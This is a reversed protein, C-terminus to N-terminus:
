QEFEPLSEVMELREHRLEARAAMKKKHLQNLYEDFDNSLSAVASLHDDTVVVKGDEDKEDYYEALAVATQFALGGASDAPARLTHKVASLVRVM